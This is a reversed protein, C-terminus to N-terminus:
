SWESRQIGCATLFRTRDFNPNDNAFIDAQKRALIEVGEQQQITKAQELSEKVANATRIFDKKTQM